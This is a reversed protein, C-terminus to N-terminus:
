DCPTGWDWGQLKLGCADKIKTYQVLELEHKFPMRPLLIDKQIIEGVSDLHKVVEVVQLPVEKPGIAPAGM